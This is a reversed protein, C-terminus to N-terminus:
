KYVRIRELDVDFSQLYIILPPKTIGCWSYKIYDRCWHNLVKGKPEQQKRHIVNYVLM